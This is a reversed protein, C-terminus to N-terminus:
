VVLHQFYRTGVHGLADGVLQQLQGVLHHVYVQGHALQTAAQLFTLNVVRALHGGRQGIEELSFVQQLQPPQRHAFYGLQQASLHFGAAAARGGHQGGAAVVVAQQGADVGVVRGGLFDNAFGRPQGVPKRGGSPVHEVHLRAGFRGVSDAQSRLAVQEIVELQGGLQTGLNQPHFVIVHHSGDLPRGGFFLGRQQDAADGHGHDSRSSHPEERAKVRRGRLVAAM